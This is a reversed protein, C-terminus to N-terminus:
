SRRPWARRSAPRRAPSSSTRPAGRACTATPSSARAGLPRRRGHQEEGLRESRHGRQRGTRLRLADSGRVVQLRPPAAGQPPEHRTSTSCSCPPRPPTSRPASVAPDRAWRWSSAPWCLQSRSSSTTRRVPPAWCSTTRGAHPSPAPEVGPAPEQGVEAARGRRRAPRPARRLPSAALHTDDRPGRGPLRRGGAGRVHRGAPQSPHRRRCGGGRSRAAPVRPPRAAARPGALADRNVLAARRATLFGEDEDPYREYLLRSVVLGVVADGLFELRENHGAASTPNENFYSSHVFAQRIAEPDNLEIGLQAGLQDLSPPPNTAM